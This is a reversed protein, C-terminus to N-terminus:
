APVEEREAELGFFLEFFLADDPVVLRVVFRDRAVVDRGDEDGEDEHHGESAPEPPEPIVFAALNALQLRARAAQDVRWRRLTAGDAALSDVVWRERASGNVGTGSCSTTRIAALGSSSPFASPVSVALTADAAAASAGGRQVVVGSGEPFVIAHWRAKSTWSTTATHRRYRRHTGDIWAELSTEEPGSSGHRFQWLVLVRSDDELGHAIAAGATALDGSLTDVGSQVTVGTEEAWEVVFASPTTVGSPVTEGEIGRRLRVTSADELDATVYALRNLSASSVGCSASVAVFTRDPDYPGALLAVSKTTDPAPILATVHESRFEGADCWVVSFSTEADTGTVKTRTLRVQSASVFEAAHAWSDADASSTLSTSSAVVLFAALVSAVPAITM